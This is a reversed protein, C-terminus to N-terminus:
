VSYNTYHLEGTERDIFLYFHENANESKGQLIQYKERGKPVFWKPKHNFFKPLGGPGSVDILIGDKLADLAKKRYPEWASLTFFFEYELAFHPSRWYWSNQVVVGNEKKEGFAREWNKPDNTWTGSKKECAALCVIAVLAAIRKVPIFSSVRM